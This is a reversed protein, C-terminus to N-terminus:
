LSQLCEEVIAIAEDIRAMVAGMLEKEIVSMPDDYHASAEAFADELAYGAARLYDNLM